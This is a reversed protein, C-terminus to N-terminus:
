KFISQWASRYPSFKWVAGTTINRLAGVEMGGRVNVAVEVEVEDGENLAPFNTNLATVAHGGVDFTISTASAPKDTYRPNRGTQDIYKINTAVGCLTQLNAM